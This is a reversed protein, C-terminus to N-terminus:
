GSFFLKWSRFCRGFVFLGVFCFDQPDDFYHRFSGDDLDDNLRLAILQQCFCRCARDEYVELLLRYLLWCVFVLLHPAMMQDTDWQWSRSVM